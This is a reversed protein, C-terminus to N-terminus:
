FLRQYARSDRSSLISSESVAARVDPIEPVEPALMHDIDLVVQDEEHAPALMPVPAPTPTPAPEPVPAEVPVPVPVVEPMPPLPADPFEIQFPFTQGVRFTGVMGFPAGNGVSSTM